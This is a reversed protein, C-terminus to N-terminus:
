KQPISHRKQGKHSLQEKRQEADQLGRRSLNEDIAHVNAHNPQMVTHRGLLAGSSWVSICMRTSLAIPSRWQGESGPCTQLSAVPSCQDRRRAGPHPYKPPERVHGNCMTMIRRDTLSIEDDELSM